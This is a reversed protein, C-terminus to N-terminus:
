SNKHIHYLGGFTLQLNPNIEMKEYSLMREVRQKEECFREKQEDTVEYWGRKRVIMRELGVAGRILFRAFELANCCIDCFGSIEVEKLLPCLKQKEDYRWRVLEGEFHKKISRIELRFKQLNPCVNLVSALSLLDFNKNTLYVILELEKLRTFKDMRETILPAQHGFFVLSLSELQPLGKGFGIHENSSTCTMHVKEFSSVGVVNLNTSWGIYEFKVVRGIEIEIKNAGKCYLLALLSLCWFPGRISLETPLKCYELRLFRLNACGSLMTDFASQDLRVFRLDINKLSNLSGTTTSEFSTRLICSKLRLHKLYSAKHLLHCPFSYPECDEPIPSFNLDLKETKMIVLLTIWKDIHCAEKNGLFYHLRFSDVKPITKACQQLIQDVQRLFLSKYKWSKASNKSFDLTFPSAFIYRWRSSLLRAKFADRMPLFSLISSLVEDPLENIDGNTKNQGAKVSFNGDGNLTRGNIGMAGPDIKKRNENKCCDM